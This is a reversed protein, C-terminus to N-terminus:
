NVPKVSVSHGGSQFKSKSLVLIDDLYIIVVMGKKRLHRMLVRTLETFVRPSSMLGMPLCKFQWIVGDLIFRTYKRSEPHLPVHYFADELDITAGFM